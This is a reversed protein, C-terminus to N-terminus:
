AAMVAARGEAAIRRAPMKAPLRVTVGDSVVAARTDSLPRLEAGRHGAAAREAASVADPVFGSVRARACCRRAFKLSLCGSSILTEALRHKAGTASWSAELRPLGKGLWGRGVRRSIGEKTKKFM